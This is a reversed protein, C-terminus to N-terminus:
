DRSCSGPPVVIPYSVHALSVEQPLTGVLEGDAQVWVGRPGDVRVGSVRRRQHALGSPAGGLLATLVLRFCGARSRGQLVLMDFFGDTMDAGPTFVLGGGYRRTNSILCSTAPLIEDPTVVRFEPFPYSLLARLTATYYSAMRLRRKLSRVHSVVYADLGIGAMLLFRHQKRGKLV